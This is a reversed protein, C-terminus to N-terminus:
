EPYPITRKFGTHLNTFAIEDAQPRYFDESYEKLVLEPVLSMVDDDTLDDGVVEYEINLTRGAVELTPIRVVERAAEPSDRTEILHHPSPREGFGGIYLSPDAPQQHTTPGRSVNLTATDMGEPDSVYRGARAGLVRELSLLIEDVRPKRHFREQYAAGIRMLAQSLEDLPDDGSMLTVGNREYDDWAM